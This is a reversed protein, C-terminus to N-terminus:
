KLLQIEKVSDRRIPFSVAGGGVRQTVQLGDPGVSDITVTVSSGDMLRVRALEGLHEGAEDIGILSQRVASEALAEQYEQYEEAPMPTPTATPAPTPEPEVIEDTRPEAWDGTGGEQDTASQTMVPEQVDFNEFEAMAMTAVSGAFVFWGIGTMIWGGVSVLFGTRADAWYKVIFIIPPVVLWSLFLLALGWGMSVRFAVILLMVGGALSVLGGLAILVYAVTIM